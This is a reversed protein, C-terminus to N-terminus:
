NKVQILCIVEQKKFMQDSEWHTNILEVRVFLRPM